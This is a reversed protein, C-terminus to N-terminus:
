DCRNGAPTTPEIFEDGIRSRIRFADRRSVAAADALDVHRDRKGEERGVEDLRRDFSPERMAHSNDAEGVQRRFPGALVLHESKRRALEGNSSLRRRRRDGNGPFPIELASFFVGIRRGFWLDATESVFRDNL